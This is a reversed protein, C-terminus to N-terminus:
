SPHRDPLRAARRLHEVLDDLRAHANLGSTSPMVYAPVGAFGTDIPGPMAKRDVALRWGELGVFCV